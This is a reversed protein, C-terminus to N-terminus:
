TINIPMCLYGPSSLLQSCIDSDAGGHDALMQTAKSLLRKSARVPTKIIEGQYTVELQFMLLHYM